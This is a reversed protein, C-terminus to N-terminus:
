LLPRVVAQPDMPQNGADIPDFATCRPGIADQVWEPPYNPDDIEVAMTWTAIPCYDGENLHEDRKCHGCWREM